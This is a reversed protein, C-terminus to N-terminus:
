SYDPFRRRTALLCATSCNPQLPNVLSGLSSVFTVLLREVSGNAPEADLGQVRKELNNTLGFADPFHDLSATTETENIPALVGLFSDTRAPARPSRGPAPSHTLPPSRLTV